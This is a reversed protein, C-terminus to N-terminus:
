TLYPRGFDPSGIPIVGWMIFEEFDDPEFLVNCRVQSRGDLYLYIAVKDGRLYDFIWERVGTPLVWNRTFSVVAKWTQGDAIRGSRLEWLVPWEEYVGQKEFILKGEQRNDSAM